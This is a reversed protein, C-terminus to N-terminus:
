AAKFQKHAGHPAGRSFLSGSDVLLLLAGGALTFLSAAIFSATLGFDGGVATSILGAAFAGVASGITTLTFYFGQLGGVRQVGGIRSLSYLAYVIIIADGLEHLARFAVAIWFDATFGFAAFGFASLALGVIFVPKLKGPNDLRKGSFYNFVAYCSITLAFLAGVGADNLGLVRQAYVSMTSNEVGFHFSVLLMVAFLVVIERSAFARWYAREAVAERYDRAFALCAFFVLAMCAALAAFGNSYGFATFVSGAVLLSVGIALAKSFELIGVDRGRRKESVRKYALSSTSVEAVSAAFGFALILLLMAEFSLRAGAAFSLAAFGAATLAMSALAVRKPSDFDTLVGFPGNSFIRPIMFATVLAGAQVLSFGASLFYLPFFIWMWGGFVWYAFRVFAAAAFDSERVEKPISRARRLARVPLFAFDVLEELM